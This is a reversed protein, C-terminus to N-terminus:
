EGGFGPSILRGVISKGCGVGHNIDLYGFHCVRGDVIEAGASM